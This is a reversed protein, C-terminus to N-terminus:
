STTKLPPEKMRLESVRNVWDEFYHIHRYWEFVIATKDTTLHSIKATVLCGDYELEVLGGNIADDYDFPLKLSEIRTLWAGFQRSGILDNCQELTAPVKNGHENLMLWMKEPRSLRKCDNQWQALLDTM